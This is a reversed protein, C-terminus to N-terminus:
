RSGRLADSPPLPTLTQLTAEIKTIEIQVQALVASVGSPDCRHAALELRRAIATLRELGLFLSSGKLNHAHRSIEDFNEQGLSHRLAALTDPVMSVFDHLSEILGSDDGTEMLPSSALLERVEASLRGAPKPEQRGIRLADSGSGYGTEPWRRLTRVLTTMTIPKALYDNMGAAFGAERDAPFANASLGIIPIEAGRGGRARIRRTAEYGDMGPMRIDMLIAGFDRRAMCAIAAEGDVASETEGGLWAIMDVVMNRNIANDDVVLTPLAADFENWLEEQRTFKAPAASARPADSRTQLSFEFWFRSGQGPTSEVGIQGGCAECIKRSIALGLGSGQPGTPATDHVQTFRDFIRAQDATTIGIGTDTVEVCVLTRRPSSSRVTVAIEIEGNETFKIANDTLNNLVRNFLATEGRVSRPVDDDITHRLEIGKELAVPGFLRVIQEVLEHLDFNEESRDFSGSELKSFELIGDILAQLTRAATEITSLHQRRATVPDMELLLSTLGTIANMPTRIEHSMSMLFTDKSQDDARRAEAQEQLDQNTQELKSALQKTEEILSDKMRLALLYDLAFDFPAFDSLSLGYRDLQEKTTLLPSGVFVLRPPPESALMQMRFSFGSALHDLVYLAGTTLAGEVAWVRDDSEATTTSELRPIEPSRSPDGVSEPIEIEDAIAIEGTRSAANYLAEFKPAIRPIRIRFVDGFWPRETVAPDIKALSPGHGVIRLESDLVLHFPFLRAIQAGDLRHIVAPHM